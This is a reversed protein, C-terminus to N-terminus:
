SKPDAAPKVIAGFFEHTGSDRALRQTGPIKTSGEGPRVGERTPVRQSSAPVSGAPLVGGFKIDLDEATAGADTTASSGEDPKPEEIAVLTAALEQEVADTEKKAVEGTIGSVDM